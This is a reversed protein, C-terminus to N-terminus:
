DARRCDTCRGDAAGALKVPTSCGSCPVFIELEREDELVLALKAMLGTARSQRRGRILDEVM